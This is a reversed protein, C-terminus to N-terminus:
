SIKETKNKNRDKNRNKNKDETKHAHSHTVVGQLNKKSDFSNNITDTAEM